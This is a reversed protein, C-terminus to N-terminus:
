DYRVNERVIRFVERDFDRKDENLKKMTPNKEAMTIKNRRPIRRQIAEKWDGQSDHVDQVIQMVAVLTLLPRGARWDINEMIPLKRCRIGDADATVRSAHTHIQPEAVRDVIGGIVFVNREDLVDATTLLEDAHPSLYILREREFHDVYSGASVDAAYSDSELVLLHRKLGEKISELQTDFNAFFLPWPHSRKRNLSILHNLQLFTLNRGRQTHQPLFRCDVVLSPRDRLLLSQVARMTEMQREYKLPTGFGWYLFTNKMLEGRLEVTEDVETAEREQRREEAKRAENARKREVQRLFKLGDFREKWTPLEALTKWQRENLESPVNPYIRLLVGLEREFDRLNKASPPSLQPWISAPPRLPTQPERWVIPRPGPSLGFFKRLNWLWRYTRSDLARSTRRM